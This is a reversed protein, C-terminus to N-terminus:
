VVEQLHKSEERGRERVESIRILLEAVDITKGFVTAQSREQDIYRAFVGPDAASTGLPGFNSLRMPGHPHSDIWRDLAGKYPGLADAITSGFLEDVRGAAVLLAQMSYWFGEGDRKALAASADRYARLAFNCQLELEHLQLRRRLTAM